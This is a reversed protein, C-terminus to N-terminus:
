FSNQIGVYLTVRAGSPVGISDENGEQWYTQDGNQSSPKLTHSIEYQVEAKAILDLEGIFKMRQLSIASKPSLSIAQYLNQDKGEPSKQTVLIRTWTLGFTAQFSLRTTSTRFGDYNLTPGFFFQGGDEVSERGDDLTILKKENHFHFDWGYYYRAYNDFNVTNLWVLNLTYRTYYKQSTMDSSYPYHNRRQNGIGVLLSARVDEEKTLPYGERLPEKLRYDTYDTGRKSLPDHNERDDKYIVKIHEGLVYAPGAMKHLTEYFRKKHTVLPDSELRKSARVGNEGKEYQPVLPSQGYEKDHIFIIDGKYVYQIIPSNISKSKFLPVRHGTVLAQGAYSIVPFLILFLKLIYVEL